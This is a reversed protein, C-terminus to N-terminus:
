AVGHRKFWDQLRRWGDEAAEKVYSPRYDAYFAHGANPYIQIETPVEAAKLAERM